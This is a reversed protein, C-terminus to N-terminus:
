RKDPVHLRELKKLQNVVDAQITNTKHEDTGRSIRNTFTLDELPVNGDNLLQLYSKQISKAHIM